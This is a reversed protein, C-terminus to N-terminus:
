TAEPRDGEYYALFIEELSPRETEFDRIPFAALAKILADMEGGVQLHVNLSDDRTLVKVGPINALTAADVPQQFRVHVRRLARNILSATESVEVVAGRRIIAVRGAGPWSKIAQALTRGLAHARSASPVNPQYYTNVFVPVIPM